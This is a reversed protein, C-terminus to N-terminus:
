QPVDGYEDLIVAKKVAGGKNQKQTTYVNNYICQQVYETKFDDAYGSAHENDYEDDHGQYQYHAWNVITVLMGCPIGIYTIMEHEYAYELYRRVKNISWQWKNALNQLSRVFQGENLHIKQGKIVIDSKKHSAMLLMDVWAQGKSFKELHWVEKEEIARHLCIWGKSM